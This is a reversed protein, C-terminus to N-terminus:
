WTSRLIKAMMTLSFSQLISRGKKWKDNMYRRSFWEILGAVGVNFAVASGGSLFLSGPLLILGLHGSLSPPIQAQHGLVFLTALVNFLFVALPWFIPCGHKM